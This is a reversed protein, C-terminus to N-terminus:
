GIHDSRARVTEPTLNKYARLDSLGAFRTSKKDIAHIDMVHSGSIVDRPPHQARPPMLSAIAIAVEEKFNRFTARKMRMLSACFIDAEGDARVRSSADM